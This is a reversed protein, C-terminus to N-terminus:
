KRKDRKNTPSPPKSRLQHAEQLDALDGLDRSRGAARKADITDQTDQLGLMSVRARGYMTRVRNKWARAFSLGSVSMLIDVRNPEMGLQYVTNPTAFDQPSIDRLPAGFKALARHVRSANHENADVWIDVKPYLPETHHIVAYAGVILFKVKEGNLYLLAEEFDPNIDM